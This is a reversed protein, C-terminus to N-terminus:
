VHVAVDRGRPGLGGRGEHGEGGPLPLAEAEFGLAQIRDAVARVLRSMGAEVSPSLDVGLQTTEPVMGLLGISAPYRGILRLGDLLDVVGVQHVSLRQAAALAVHEGDLDVLTGPPEDLEVADVLLVKPVDALHSMLSMGLTGGDLVLVGPGLRYGDLLRKVAAVGLGDDRCLVNGLGVVCLRTGGDTEM